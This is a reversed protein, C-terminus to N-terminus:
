FLISLRVRKYIVTVLTYYLEKCDTRFEGIGCFVFSLLEKYVVM